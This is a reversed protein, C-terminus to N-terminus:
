ECRRVLHSCFARPFAPLWIHEARVLLSQAICPLARSCSTYIDSRQTSHFVSCKLVPTRRSYDPPFRSSFERYGGVISLLIQPFLSAARSRSSWPSARRASSQSSRCLQGVRFCRHVESGGAQSRTSAACRRRLVCAYCRPPLVLSALLRSIRRTAGCLSALRRAPEGRWVTVVSAQRSRM